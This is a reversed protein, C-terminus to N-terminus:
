LISVPITLKWRDGVVMLPLVEEVGKLLGGSGVRTYYPEPNDFLDDIKNDGCFAAFRIAVLEGLEPKPGQGAKTITYEVGSPLTVTDAAFAPPAFLAAVGAGAISQVFADRSLGRSSPAWAQAALPLLAFTYLVRM